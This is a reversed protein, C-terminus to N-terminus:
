TKRKKTGEMWRRMDAPAAGAEETSEARSKCCKSAAQAAVRGIVQEQKYTHASIKREHRTRARHDIWVM